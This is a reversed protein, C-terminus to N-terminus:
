AVCIPRQTREDICWQRKGARNTTVDDVYVIRARGLAPHVKAFRPRIRAELATRDTGPATVLLIDIGDDRLRM